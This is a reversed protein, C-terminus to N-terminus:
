KVGAKKMKKLIDKILEDKVEYGVIRIGSLTVEHIKIGILYKLIEKRHFGIVWIVKGYFSIEKKLEFSITVETGPAIESFAEIRLGDVSIELTNVSIYFEPTIVQTDFNVKYREYSRRDTYFNSTM